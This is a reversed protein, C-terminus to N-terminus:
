RTEVSTVSADSGETVATSLSASLLGAGGAVFKVARAAFRELLGSQLQSVVSTAAPRQLLARLRPATGALLDRYSAVWAQM